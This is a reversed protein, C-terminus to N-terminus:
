EPPNDGCYQGPVAKVWPRAGADPVPVRELKNAHQIARYNYYNWFLNISANVLSGTNVLTRFGRKISNLPSSTEDYVRRWGRILEDVTMNRPRIVAEYANYRVWDKPYDTYLLRDEKKMQEYLRTGPFPTMITFQSGDIGTEHIFEITKDFVDKTDADTGLIFGGIVGIGHDHFKRITKKYNRIIPRLNIKKNVSKLAEADISEFGIYFTNAGAEAADRLLDDHEAITICVQSGWSKGLGKLRAFLNKAHAIGDNGLGVISDDAIFFRQDELGEIEEVVQDLTRFRYRSGNFKTVSCFSCNCPCGRSTQVSHVMYKSSYISRDIKPINELGPRTEAAYVKKLNNKEYDDLVRPWLEDAEGTVVTDAHRAAEGSLVSAHIGGMVTPIGRRRFEHLIQYARPAQGTTATVAVLDADAGTDLTDVNEDIVAVSYREPTRSALVGLGMPPLALMKMKGFVTNNITPNIFLIKKM